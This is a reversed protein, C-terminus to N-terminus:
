REASPQELYRQIRDKIGSRASAVVLDGTALQFRRPPIFTHQGRRVAAVRLKNRVEIQDIPVGDAAENVIFEVIEVDGGAFTVHFSFEREVVQEYLVNAILKTGTVHHIGLARYSDERSPDYLRAIAQEVGFVRKAVEVAMLNANDSDTVALFVDEQRLGAQRLIGVDYALGVHTAGNFAKGLADLAKRRRDIMSVDHGDEALRAALTSGM